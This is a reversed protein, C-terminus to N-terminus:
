RHLAQALWEAKRVRRRRGRVGAAVALFLPLLEQPLLLLHAPLGVPLDLDLHGPTVAWSSPTIPGWRVASPCNAALCPSYFPSLYNRAQDLGVFYNGNRFAAWTAYVVFGFLGLGTVLPQLWWRDKRLVVARSPGCVHAGIRVPIPEPQRQSAPLDEIVSM